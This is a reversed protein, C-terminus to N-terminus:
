STNALDSCNMKPILLRKEELNELTNEKCITKMTKGLIWRIPKM